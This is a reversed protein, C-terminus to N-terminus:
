PGGKQATLAPNCTISDIKLNGAAGVVIADIKVTQAGFKETIVAQATTTTASMAM